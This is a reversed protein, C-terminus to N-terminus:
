PHAVTQLTRLLAQSRECELSLADSDMAGLRKMVRNEYFHTLQRKLSADQTVEYTQVLAVVVRCYGADSALSLLEDFRQITFASRQQAYQAAMQSQSTSAVRCAQHFRERDQPLNAARFWDPLGNAKARDPELQTISAEFERVAECEGHQRYVGLTENLRSLQEASLPGQILSPGDAAHVFSTWLLMSLWLAPRKRGTSASSKAM